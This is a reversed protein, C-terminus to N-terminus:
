GTVPALLGHRDLSCGPLGVAGEAAGTVREVPTPSALRACPAGPVLDRSGRPGMLRHAEVCARIGEIWPEM